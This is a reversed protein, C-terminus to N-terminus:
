VRSYFFVRSSQKMTCTVQLVTANLNKWVCESTLTGQCLARLRTLQVGVSGYRVPPIYGRLTGAVVELHGSLLRSNLTCVVTYYVFAHTTMVYLLSCILQTLNGIRNITLQVPFFKRAGTRAQSIPKALCTQSDRRKDAQENEISVSFRTSVTNRGFEAAADM